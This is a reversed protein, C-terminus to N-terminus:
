ALFALPYEVLAFYLSARIVEGLWCIANAAQVLAFM